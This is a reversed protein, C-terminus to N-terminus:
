MEVHAWRRNNPLTGAEWSAITSTLTEDWSTIMDKMNYHKLAHERALKGIEARKEPGMEHVRM